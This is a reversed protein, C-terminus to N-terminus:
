PLAAGTAADVFWQSLAILTLACGLMVQPHRSCWDGPTGFFLRSM